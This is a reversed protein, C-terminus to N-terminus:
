VNAIHEHMFMFATRCNTASGLLDDNMPADFASGYLKRGVAKIFHAQHKPHSTKANATV